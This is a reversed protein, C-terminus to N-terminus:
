FFFSGLIKQLQESPVKKQQILNLVQNGQALTAEKMVIGGLNQSIRAIIRYLPL